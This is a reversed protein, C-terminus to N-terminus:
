GTELRFRPAGDKKKSNSEDTVDTRSTRETRGDTVNTRVNTPTTIVDPDPRICSRANDHPPRANDGDDGGDEIQFDAIGKSKLKKLTELIDGAEVRISHELYEMEANILESNKKSAECLIGVWIYKQIASFSFFDPSSCFDNNLRLWTYTKQDRKPNYKDWNKIKIRVLM